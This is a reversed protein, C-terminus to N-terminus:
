RPRRRSTRAARRGSARAAAGAGAGGGRAFGGLIDSLIDTPRSPIATPRGVPRGASPRAGGRAPTGAAGPRAASARSARSARSATPASRAATSSAASTRTASSRTPPTSRPSASRRRRTAQKQDPHHKKALKRFASKIEAESATRSVGLVEYPDRMTSSLLLPILRRFHRAWRRLITTREATSTWGGAATAELLVQTTRRWARLAALAGDVAAPLGRRPLPARRPPRQGHHRVDPLAAGGQALTPGLRSRAPRAPTPTAGPSARRQRRRAQRRANRPGGGLRVSRREDGDKDRVLPPRIAAPSAPDVRAESGDATGIGACGGLSLALASLLAIGRIFRRNARLKASVVPGFRYASIVCVRQPMARTSAVKRCCDALM